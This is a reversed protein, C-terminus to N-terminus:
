AVEITTALEHTAGPEVTVVDKWAHATEVCVFRQYDEDPLDALAAAKEIWPNWVVRTHGGSGQIAITRGWASDKIRVEGAAHYMRDVERDIVVDGTQKRVAKPGVTDLYEAGDLGEIIVQRIDGVTFYSHLAATISFPENGANTTKLAVHLEAGIRMELEIRFAHPWLRRTEANDQTAFKMTVGAEDEAANALEWFRSRVFGHQPLKPDTEHHGFWPWCVPIGGRIAKGEHYVADPSLYIVPKQGAPTWEMLQAGHLAVRARATPHEIEFVPYGPMLEVQRVSSPPNM